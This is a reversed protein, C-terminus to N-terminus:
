LLDRKLLSALLFLTSLFHILLTDIWRLEKSYTDYFKFMDMKGGTSVHIDLFLKILTLCYLDLDPDVRNIQINTWGGLTFINSYFNWLCDCRLLLWRGVLWNESWGFHQKVIFKDYPLWDRWWSYIKNQSSVMMRILVHCKYLTTNVEICHWSSSMADVNIHHQILM